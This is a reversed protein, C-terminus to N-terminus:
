LRWLAADDAAGTAGWVAPARGYGCRFAHVGCWRCRRHRRLRRSRARVRLPFRTL